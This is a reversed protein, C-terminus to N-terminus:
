MKLFSKMPMSSTKSVRDVAGVFHDFEAEVDAEGAHFARFGVVAGQSNFIREVKGVACTVRKQAADETIGLAGGIERHNLRKDCRILTVM